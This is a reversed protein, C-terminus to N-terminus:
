GFAFDWPVQFLTARFGLISVPSALPAEARLHTPHGAPTPDPHSQSAGKVMEDSFGKKRGPGRFLTHEKSGLSAQTPVQGLFVDAGLSATDRGATGM